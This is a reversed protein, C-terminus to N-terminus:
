TVLDDVVNIIEDDDDDADRTMTDLGHVPEPCHTSVTHREGETDVSSCSSCDTLEVEPKQHDRSELHPLRRFPASTETVSGARREIVDSGTAAHLSCHAHRRFDAVQRFPGRSKSDDDSDHIDREDSSQREHVQFCCLKYIFM